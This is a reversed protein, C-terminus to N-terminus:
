NGKYEITGDDTTIKTYRRHYEDSKLLPILREAADLVDRVAGCHRTPFGFGPMEHLTYTTRNNRTYENVRYGFDRLLVTLASHVYERRTLDSKLKIKPPTAPIHPEILEGTSTVPLLDNTISFGQAPVCLFFSHSKWSGSNVSAYENVQALTGTINGCKGNHLQYSVMYEPETVEEAM